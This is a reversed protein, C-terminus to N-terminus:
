GFSILRDSQLAADVLQGLGAIDSSEFLSVSDKEHREAERPNIIGRSIASSVCAISEIEHSEILQHWAQPLNIEDQPSVALANLTFVGDGYFFVRYIDHGQDLLNRAFQYATMSAQSSFPSACVVLSFKV